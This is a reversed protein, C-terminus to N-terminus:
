TIFVTFNARAAAGATVTIKRPPSLYVSAGGIGYVFATGSVWWTGPALALTYAGGVGAYGFRQGACSTPTPPATCAEVGIQTGGNAPAGVVAVTGVVAGDTPTQYAVTLNRTTTHNATVTVTTGTLTTYSGFLTVYGPYLIWSGPTLTPLRYRNYPPQTVPAPASPVIAHHSGAPGGSAVSFFGSGTVGSWERVCAISPVGGRWPASAPCALVTYQEITVGAHVRTVTVSGVATGPVVYPLTLNLTTIKGASVTVTHKPGFVANFFPPDFYFPQLTWKGVALPLTFPGNFVNTGTCPQGRAPTPCAEVGIPAVFGSPAGTVVVSGTVIGNTPKIYPTTVNVTQTQNSKVTTKKGAKVAYTAGFVTVYGPFVTWGVPPLTSVNYTGGSPSPPSFSQVCAIPPTGGTYPSYAPCLLAIYGQITVGAPVGTVTVSGTLGGPAKYPITLNVTVTKTAVVNVTKASGLFAGGFPGIEYFGDLRWPGAALSLTYTKGNALSFQPSACIQGPPTSTPCAGAGLFPPAFGKPAGTITVTGTVTGTAV